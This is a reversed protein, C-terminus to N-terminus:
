KDYKHRSHVTTRFSRGQDTTSLSPIVLVTLCPKAAFQSLESLRGAQSSLSFLIQFPFPYLKSTNAATHGCSALRSALLYVGFHHSHMKTGGLCRTQECALKRFFGM